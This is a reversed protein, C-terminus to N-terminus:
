TEANEQDLFNKILKLGNEQSKEPHFQVAYINDKEISSVIKVGGYDCISSIKEQENTNVKMYYSHLYYFIAENFDKLLGDNKLIQTENWGMHPVKEINNQPEIPLIEADVWGFGKTEGGEFSHNALFELGLCIGFYPKKNDIVEETLVSVLGLKELNNMGDSFAGVGPLIISECDRIEQINNTIKVEEGLLRFANYVSKVNGMNYDIICKM